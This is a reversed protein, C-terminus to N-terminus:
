RSADREQQEIVFNQAHQLLAIMCPIDDPYLTRVTQYSGDEKRIRKGFTIKLRVRTDDDEVTEDRYAAVQNRGLAWSRIPTTKKDDASM